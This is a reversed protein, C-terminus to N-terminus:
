AGLKGNGVRAAPLCAHPRAPPTLTTLSTVKKVFPQDAGTTWTHQDDNDYADWQVPRSHLRLEPSRTLRRATGSHHPRAPPTPLVLPQATTRVSDDEIPNIQVIAFGNAVLYQKFRQDWLAGAQPTWATFTHSPLHNLPSLQVWQGELAVAAGM